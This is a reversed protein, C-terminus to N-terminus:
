KDIPCTADKEFRRKSPSYSWGSAVRMSGTQYAGHEQKPLPLTGMKPTDAPAIIGKQSSVLHSGVLAALRGRRIVPPTEPLSTDYPISLRYEPFSANQVLLKRTLLSQLCKRAHTPGIGVAALDVPRLHAWRCNRCGYTLRVVLLLISLDRKSLPLCLLLDLIPHPVATFGTRKSRSLSAM